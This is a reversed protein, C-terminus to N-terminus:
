KKGKKIEGSFANWVQGGLTVVGGIFVVVEDWPSPLLGSGPGYASVFTFYAVLTALAWWRVFGSITDIRPGVRRAWRRFRHRLSRRVLKRGEYRRLKPSDYHKRTV